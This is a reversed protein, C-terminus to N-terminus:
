NLRTKLLHKLTIPCRSLNHLKTWIRKLSMFGVWFINPDIGSHLIRYIEFLAQKAHATDGQFYLSKGIAYNLADSSEVYGSLVFRRYDERFKDSRGRRGHSELLLRIADTFFMHGPNNSVQKAFEEVLAYQEIRFASDILYWEAEQVFGAGYISETELLVYFQEAADKYNGLLYDTVAENFMLEADTQGLVKGRREYNGQIALIGQEITAMQQTAQSESSRGSKLNKQEPRASVEHSSLLLLGAILSCALPQRFESIYQRLTLWTRTTNKPM